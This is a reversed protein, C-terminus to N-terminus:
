QLEGITGDCKTTDEMERKYKARRNQFWLVVQVPELGLSSALSVRDGPALYKDRQFRRELEFLQQQTFATRPKRKKCYAGVIGQSGFSSNEPPQRSETDGSYGTVYNKSPKDNQPTFGTPFLGYKPPHHEKDKEFEGVQNQLHSESNPPLQAPFPKCPLIHEKSEFGAFFTM